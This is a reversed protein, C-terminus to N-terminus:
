FSLGTSGPTAYVPIQSLTENLSRRIWKKKVIEYQLLLLYFM